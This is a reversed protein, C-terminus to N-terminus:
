YSLKFPSSRRQERERQLRQQEKAAQTLISIWLEANSKMKGTLKKRGMQENFILYLCAKILQADSDGRFVDGFTDRYRQNLLIRGNDRDLSLLDTGPVMAWVIDIPERSDLRAKEDVIKRISPLGRGADALVDPQDSKKNSERLAQAADDQARPFDFDPDNPDRLSAMFEHFGSGLRVSGKQASVTVYNDLIEPDSVEVRMLKKKKDTQQYGAWGGLTLLRDQDYFYFGQHGDEAKGELNFEASDSRNPWIHVTVGPADEAGNATLRRPYDPDGSKRYGFPNIPTIDLSHEPLEDDYQTFLSITPAGKELFRHYRVGLHARLSNMLSDAHRRAEADDNGAYVNKLKDWVVTTGHKLEVVDKRSNWTRNASAETLHGASFNQTTLLFAETRQGRMRSAVTFEDANSYSGENMGVGFRGINNSSNQEHSGPRLVRTMKDLDMGAGDDHVSIRAIHEGAFHLVIAITSAGADISNDVLEDIGTELTHNSSLARIVDKTPALEIYEALDKDPASM